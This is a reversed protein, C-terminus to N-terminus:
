QSQGRSIQYFLDLASDVGSKAEIFLQPMIQYKLIIEPAQDLVNIGYTIQIDEAIRGTIQVQTQDGAGATQLNLSDFGLATGIQGIRSDSKRVGFSVLANLLAADSGSSRNPDTKTLDRGQLLYSLQVAQTMPPDSFLEVQPMVPNGSIHLGAVIDGEINLPNRIARIDFQPLSPEGNFFIKGSQIVLMQGYAEYSGDLINVQGNLTTRLPEFANDTESRKQEVDLTLDGSLTAALDLADVTVFGRKPTDILINLDIDIALPIIPEPAKQGIIFTDASPTKASQPLETVTIEASPIAIVGQLSLDTPSLMFTVDPSVQAQSDAFAFQMDKGSLQGDISFPQALNLKASYNGKGKGLQFAGQMDASQGAFTMKHEFNTLPYTYADLILEGSNVKLEGDLTPAVLVGSFGVDANVMGLISQTNPIFRQLLNLDFNDIVIRGNHTRQEPTLDLQSQLGIIGTRESGGHVVSSLLNDQLSFNAIIANLDLTHRTTELKGGIIINYANVSLGSDVSYNAMLKSNLPLSTDPLIMEPSYHRAISAIDYAIDFLGKGRGEIFELQAMCISDSSSANVWCHDGVSFDQNRIDAVIAAANDISFQAFPLMVTGKQWRGRWRSARENLTLAGSFVHSSSIENAQAEVTITHSDKDGSITILSTNLAVENDVRLDAARLDLTVAFNNTADLKFDINARDLKVNDFKLADVKSLFVVNPEGLKGTMNGSLDVSGGLRDDFQSANPVDLVFALQGIASQMDAANLRLYETHPLQLKGNLNFKSDGQEFTLQKINVEGSKSVSADCKASLPFGAYSGKINTCKLEGRMWKETFVHSLSLNGSINSRMQANFVGLNLKNLKVAANSNIALINRDSTLNQLVFDGSLIVDGLEGATSLKEIRLAQNSPSVSALLQITSLGSASSLSAVLDTELSLKYEDWNGDVSFSANHITSDLEGGVFRKLNSLEILKGKLLIPLKPEAWKSQVNLKLLSQTNSSQITKVDIDTNDANGIVSAVLQAGASNQGAQMLSVQVEHTWNNQINLKAQLQLKDAIVGNANLMAQADLKLNAEIAQNQVNVMARTLSICNQAQIHEIVQWCLHEISAQKLTVNLPIFVEPLDIKPAKKLQAQMTELLSGSHTKAGQGSAESSAGADISGSDATQSNAYLLLNKVSVQGVNFREFLAIDDINLKTIKLIRKLEQPANAPAPQKTTKQETLAQEPTQAAETRQALSFQEISVQSIDVPFPLRIYESVSDESPEKSAIPLIVNLTNVDFSGVCAALDLVCSLGIDIQIDRADVNIGQEINLRIRNVFIKSYVSGKIGVIELGEVKNAFYGALRLGPNTGIAFVLLVASLCTILFGIALYRTMNRLTINRMNM